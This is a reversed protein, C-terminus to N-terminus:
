RGSIKESHLAVGAAQNSDISFGMEGGWPTKWLVSQQVYM